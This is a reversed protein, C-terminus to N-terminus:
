SYRITAFYVQERRSAIKRQILDITKWRKTSDTLLPKVVGLIPALMTAKFLIILIIATPKNKTALRSPIAAHAINLGVSHM